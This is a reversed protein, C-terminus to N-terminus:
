KEYSNNRIFFILVKIYSIPKIDKMIEKVSFINFYDSLMHSTISFQVWAYKRLISVFAESVTDNKISM